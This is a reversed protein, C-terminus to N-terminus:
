KKLKTVMDLQEQTYDEGLKPAEPKKAATATPRRRTESGTTSSDTTSTKDFAGSKLKTLLAEAKTNKPYLNIARNLLKEAKELNGSRIESSAVEFCQESAEINTESVTM